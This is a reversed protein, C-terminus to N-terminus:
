PTWRATVFAAKTASAIDAPTQPTSSLYQNVIVGGSTQGAAFPSGFPRSGMAGTSPNTVSPAASYIWNPDNPVTAANVPNQEVTDKLGLWSAIADSIDTLFDGLGKAWENIVPMVNNDIWNNFSGFDTIGEKNLWGSLAKYNNQIRLVTAGWPGLGSLISTKVFQIHKDWIPQGGNDLWATFNDYGKQVGNSIEDAWSSLTPIYDTAIKNNLTTLWPMYMLAIRDKFGTWATKVDLVSDEYDASAKVGEDSMIGGIEHVHDGLEAVEESSANLVPNLADAANGLLTAAVTARDGDSKISQLATIVRAFLEEPTMSDAEQMTIGLTELTEITDEKRSAVNEYLDRIKKGVESLSTGYHQLIHDWRQYEENTFGLRQAQKDIQDGREATENAAKIAAKGVAAVATVVATVWGAASKVFGALKSMTGQAKSDVNRLNKEAGSTEVLVSGFLKFIEM